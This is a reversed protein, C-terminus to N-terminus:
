TRPSKQSPRSAILMVAGLGAGAFGAAISGGGIVILAGRVRDVASPEELFGLVFWGWWLLLGAALILTVALLGRRGKGKGALLPLHGRRAAVPDSPAGGGWSPPPTAHRVRSTAGQVPG